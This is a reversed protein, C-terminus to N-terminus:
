DWYQQYFADMVMRLPQRPAEADFQYLGEAFHVDDPLSFTRSKNLAAILNPYDNETNQSNYLAIAHGKQEMVSTIDILRNIPSQVGIEYALPVPVPSDEIGTTQRHENLLEGLAAWVLRTTMRHDPHPEFCAPFFVSAPQVARIRDKIRGILQANFRLGRDPEQWCDLSDLQLYRAAEQVERQRIAVLDDREGGLAGDTMVVAHAAIGEAAARLLCGGLGFTEDDAHPAFVLWPGAPLPSVSFPVFCHEQNVPKIEQNELLISGIVPRILSLRM